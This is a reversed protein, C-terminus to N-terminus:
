REVRWCVPVADLAELGRGVLGEEDVAFDGSIPASLYAERRCGGKEEREKGMEWGGKYIVVSFLTM